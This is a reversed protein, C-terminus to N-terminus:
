RKMALSTFGWTDLFYISIHHFILVQYLPALSPTMMPGAYIVRSAWALSESIICSLCSVDLQFSRFHDLKMRPFSPEVLRTQSAVHFANGVHFPTTEWPSPTIPPLDEMTPPGNTISNMESAPIGYIPIGWDSYDSSKRWILWAYGHLLAAGCCHRSM